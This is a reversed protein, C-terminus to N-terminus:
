KENISALFQDYFDQRKKELVEFKYQKAHKFNRESQEILNEKHLLYKIKSVLDNVNKSKFIVKDDLLEPMGGANSSICACGRSMAEILARPLGETESPQIYIYTEKDLITFVEEHSVKGTFIVRDSLNLNEVLSLLRTQCGGGVIKYIFDYGQDILKSIAKLVYEQGKYSINVVGMTTIVIQKTNVHNKYLDIKKNQSPTSKLIVNSINTIHHQAPYRKQLFQKTVYIVYESKAVLKKLKRRSFVSYLKGLFSHNRLADWPCAVVEVIYPKQIKQAYNLAISGITSPLRIVLIDAYNVEKIIKKRSKKYNKFLLPRNFAKIENIFLGTANLNLLEDTKPSEFVRMMFEVKDGIYLYRNYLEIDASTGYQIGEKDKWRPGDHIFLVKRM